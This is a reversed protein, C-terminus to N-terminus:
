EIAEGFLAEYYAKNRQEDAIAKAKGEDFDSLKKQMIPFLEMSAPRLEPHECLLAFILKVIETMGVLDIDGYFYSPYSIGSIPSINNSIYLRNNIEDGTVTNTTYILGNAISDVIDDHM